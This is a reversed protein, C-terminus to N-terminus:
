VQDGVVRARPGRASEERAEGGGITGVLTAGGVVGAGFVRVERGAVGVGFRRVSFHMAIARREGSCLVAVKSSPLLAM